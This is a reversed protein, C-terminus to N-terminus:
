QFNQQSARSSHVWRLPEMTWKRRRNSRCMKSVLNCLFWLFCCFAALQQLYYLQTRSVGMFAAFARATGTKKRRINDDIRRVLKIQEVLTM